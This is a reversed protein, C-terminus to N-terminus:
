VKNLNLKLISVIWIIMIIVFITLHIEDLGVCFLVFIWEHALDAIRFPASSFSWPISIYSHSRKPYLFIFPARLKLEDKTLFASIIIWARLVMFYKTPTLLKDWYLWYKKIFISIMIIVIFTNCSVCHSRKVTL